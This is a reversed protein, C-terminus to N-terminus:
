EIVIAPKGEANREFHGRCNNTPDWATMAFELGRFVSFTCRFGRCLSEFDKDWIIAPDILGGFRPKGDQYFEISADQGSIYGDLQEILGEADCEHGHTMGFRFSFPTWEDPTYSVSLPEGQEPHIHAWESDKDTYFSIHLDPYREKLFDLKM